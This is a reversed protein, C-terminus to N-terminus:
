STYLRSSYVVCYMSYYYDIWPTGLNAVVRGYKSKRLRQLFFLGDKNLPTLILPDTEWENGIYNTVFVGIEDIDCAPASYYTTQFDSQLPSCSERARGLLFDIGVSSISSPVVQACRKRPSVSKWIWGNQRAIDSLGMM